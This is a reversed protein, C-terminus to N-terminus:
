HMCPKDSGKVGTVLIRDQGGGRAGGWAWAARTPWGCARAAEAKMFAAAELAIESAKALIRAQEVALAEAADSDFPMHQVAVEAGGAVHKVTVHALGAHDGHCAAVEFDADM